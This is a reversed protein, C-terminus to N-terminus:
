GRTPNSVSDAPPKQRKCRLKRRIWSDLRSLPWPSDIMKYYSVGGPLYGKLEHM